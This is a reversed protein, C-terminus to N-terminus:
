FYISVMLEVGKNKVDADKAIKSMGMSYRAAVALKTLKVGVGIKIGTDASKFADKTDEEDSQGAVTMKTKASLLYNFYPGATVYPKLLPLFPLYFRGMVPVQIYQLKDEITVPQGFLNGDYKAGAQVYLLEPAVSINLLKIEAFIGGMIGAKSNLDVDQVDGGGYKSVNLGGTIGTAIQAQALSVLLVLGLILTFKKM